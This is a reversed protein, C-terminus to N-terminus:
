SVRVSRLAIFHLPLPYKRSRLIRFPPPRAAGAYNAGELPGSASEIHATVKEGNKIVKDGRTRADSRGRLANLPRGLRPTGGFEAM